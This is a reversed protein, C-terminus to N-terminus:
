TKLMNIGIFHDIRPVRKNRIRPVFVLVPNSGRPGGVFLSCSSSLTHKVEGKLSTEYIGQLESRQRM